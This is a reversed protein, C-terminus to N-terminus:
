QKCQAEAGILALALAGVPVGASNIQLRIHEALELCAEQEAPSLSAILGKIMLLTEEENNM